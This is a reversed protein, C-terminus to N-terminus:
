IYFNFLKRFTGVFTCTENKAYEYSYKFDPCSPMALHSFKINERAQHLELAGYFKILEKDCIKHIYDCDERCPFLPRGEANCQPLMM